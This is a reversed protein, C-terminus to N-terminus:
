DQKKGSPKLKGRQKTRYTRVIINFDKRINCYYPTFVPVHRGTINANYFILDTVGICGM